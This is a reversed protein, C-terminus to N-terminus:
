GLVFGTPRLLPRHAPERRARPRHVAPEGRRTRRRAPERHAPHKLSALIQREQEFRKWVEDAPAASRLLKLAVQQDFAGDDREALYVVAMGGRGIERVVRYAGIREGTRPRPWPDVAEGLSTWLPGTLIREPSLRQEDRDALRLLQTIEAALRADRARVEDLFTEREGTELDLAQDFLRDIEALRQPDPEM